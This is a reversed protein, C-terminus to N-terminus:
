DDQVDKDESKLVIELAQIAGEVMMLQQELNKRQAKYQELQEIINSKM